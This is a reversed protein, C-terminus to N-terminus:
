TFCHKFGMRLRVYNLNVKTFRTKVTFSRLIYDSDMYMRKICLLQAFIYYNFATERFRQVWIHNIDLVGGVKLQQHYDM